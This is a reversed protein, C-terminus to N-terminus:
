QKWALMRFVQFCRSTDLTLRKNCYYLCDLPVWQHRSFLAISDLFTQIIGSESCSICFTTSHISSFFTPTGLLLVHVHGLLWSSGTLFDATASWQRFNRCWFCGTSNTLCTSLDQSRSAQSDIFMQVWVPTCPLFLSHWMTSLTWFENMSAKIKFRISM